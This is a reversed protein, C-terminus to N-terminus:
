DNLCSLTYKEVDDEIALRGYQVRDNGLRREETERKGSDWVKNEAYV